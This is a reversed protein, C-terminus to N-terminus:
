DYYDTSHITLGKSSSSQNFSITEGPYMFITSIYQQSTEQCNGNGMMEISGLLLAEKIREITSKGGYCITGEGSVRLSLQKNKAVTNVPIVSFDINRDGSLHCEGEGLYCVEQKRNPSQSFIPVRINENTIYRYNYLKKSASKIIIKDKASSVIKCRVYPSFNTIPVSLEIKNLGKKLVFETLSITDNLQTNTSLATIVEINVKSPSKAEIEFKYSINKASSINSPSIATKLIHYDEGFKELYVQEEANEQAQFKLHLKSDPVHNKEIAPVRLDHLKYYSDSYLVIQKPLLNALQTSTIFPDQYFTNIVYRINLKRLEHKLTEVDNINALFAIRSDYAHYISLKSYQLTEGQRLVIAKGMKDLQNQSIYAILNALNSSDNAMKEHESKAIIQFSTVDRLNRLGVISISCIFFIIAGFRTIKKNQLFDALSISAFVVVIAVPQMLYRLNFVFTDIGALTAILAIAYFLAVSLFLLQLLNYNKTFINRYSALMGLIGLFYLLGWYKVEYFTRLLTALKENSDKLGRMVQWFEQYEKLNNRIVPINGVDGAITGLAKYMQYLDPAVIFICICSCFLGTKIATTLDYKHWNALSLIFFIIFVNLAGSTHIFWALGCTIALLFLNAYSYKTSLVHHLMVVSLTMFAIRYPDIHCKIIYHLVIPTSIYLMLAWISAHQKKLLHLIYIIILITLLPYYLCAIKAPLLIANYNPGLYDDIGVLHLSLFAPYGLPHTFPALLGFSDHAAINPYWSVDSKTLIIKAMYFYETSDNEVLPAYFYNAIILIVCFIAFALHWKYEKVKQIKEILTSWSDMYKNSSWDKILFVLFICLYLAFIASIYTHHTHHPFFRILQLWIWSTIFPSLSLAALIQFIKDIEPCYRNIIQKLNVTGLFYINILSILLLAM